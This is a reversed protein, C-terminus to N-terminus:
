RSFILFELLILSFVVIFLLLNVRNLQGDSTKHRKSKKADSKTEKPKELSNETEQDPIAEKETM